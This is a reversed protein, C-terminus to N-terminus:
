RRYVAVGTAATIIADLTKIGASKTKNGPVFLIDGARMPSDTSQGSLLKALNVPVETRAAESGGRLIKAKSGNATPALGEALSLAQLVSLTERSSLTYSGPKRVEGVVYIVEARPVSVVDNPRIEINTAPAKAEILEKLDVEAVSFQKTEDEHATALPIAGWEPRRTVKVSRGADESLGGALSLVELLTKSGELQHVGPSKVSGFVSVPQSRAEALRVVVQPELLYTRLRGTLDKELQQVTFGSAQIRGLRPLTINGDTDIRIPANTFEDVNLCQVTITDNPGLRYSGDAVTSEASGNDPQGGAAAPHQAGPAIGVCFLWAAFGFVARRLLM